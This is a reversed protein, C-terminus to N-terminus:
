LGTVVVIPGTRDYEFLASSSGPVTKGLFKFWLTPRAPVTVGATARLKGRSPLRITSRNAGGQGTGAGGSGMSVTARAQQVM